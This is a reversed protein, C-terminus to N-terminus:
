NDKIPKIEKLSVTGPSAKAAKYAQELAELLKKETTTCSQGWSGKYLVRVFFGRESRRHYSIHEDVLEINTMTFEEGRVEIYDLGLKEGHKLVRELSDFM